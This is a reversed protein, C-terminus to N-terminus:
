SPAFLTRGSLGRPNISDFGCATAIRKWSELQDAVLAKLPYFILATATPERELLRFTAAQFILSKGSATGTAVVVNKEEAAYELAKAQHTWIGNKLLPDARIWNGVLGDSLKQPVPVRRESKPPLIIREVETLQGSQALSLFEQLM